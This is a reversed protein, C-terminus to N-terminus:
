QRCSPIQLCNVSGGGMGGRGGNRGPGLQGEAIAVTGTCILLLVLIFSILQKM